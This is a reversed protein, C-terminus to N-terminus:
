TKPRLVASWYYTGFIFQELVFRASLIERLEGEEFYNKLIVFETGDDLFRRKYNNGHEDVRVSELEPGEAPPNNDVLWISGGRALPREVVDYFGDYAQRPQHSFWFGAVVVDYVPESAVSFMDAQRFTVPCFYEKDRAEALMERSLDVALIDRATASMAHTWYGTGCALELVHKRFVLGQLRKVEDDIEKRRAPMDRYYIQEYEAARARYYQELDSNRM